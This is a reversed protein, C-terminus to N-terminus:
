SIFSLTIPEPNRNKDFFVNDKFQKYAYIQRSGDVQQYCGYVKGDIKKKNVMFRSYSFPTNCSVPITRKVIHKM